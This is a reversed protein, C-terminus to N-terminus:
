YLQIEEYDDDVSVDVDYTFSGFHDRVSIDYDGKGQSQFKELKKLLEHVTM